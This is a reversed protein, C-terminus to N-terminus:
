AVHKLKTGDEIICWREIIEGEDIWKLLYNCQRMKGKSYVETNYDKATVIWHEGMWDVVAGHRIDEDPLAIITKTDLNDTNMIAVERSEGDVVANHFSLSNRLKRTIYAKERHLMANRQSDGGSEMRTEFKRWYDGM